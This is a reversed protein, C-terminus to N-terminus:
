LNYKLNETFLYENFFHYLNKEHITYLYANFYLMILSDESKKVLFARFYKM